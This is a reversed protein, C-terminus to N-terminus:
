SFSPDRAAIGVSQWLSGDARLLTGDELSAYVIGAAETGTLRHTGTPPEPLDETGTAADVVAAAPAGQETTGLAIVAEEDYWTAQTVDDMPLPLQVPDTISRPAGQADRVVACVDARSTGAVDTVLLLRTADPAIDLWRVARGVLWGVPLRADQSPGGSSLILLTGPDARDATWVRSADDIRPPLMESGTVERRAISGDTSAILIGSGDPRRAAVLPTTASVVPDALVDGALADALQPTRTGGSPIELIGTAGAACARRGPVSRAIDAGDVSTLTTSGSTMSVDGVFPLSSLTSLIQSVVLERRGTPLQAVAAPLGVSAAGGSGSSISADDFTLSSPIASHVAGQLFPAPGGTLLDLLASGAGQAPVWRQDPVLHLERADLFYVRGTTFLIEFAAESLFIGAPPRSIRWQGDVREVPVDIDRAAPSSLMTRVGLEDVQAVAQLTLRVTDGEATASFEQDGSYVTVAATPDWAARAQATLYLRAVEYDADGGVGAQVFGTVIDEPAAGPAPRRPQVYPSGPDAAGELPTASITSRDPIRACASAALLLSGATGARLLTRRRPHPTEPVSM